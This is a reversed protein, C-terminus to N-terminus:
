AEGNSNLAYDLDYLMSFIEEIERDAKGAIDVSNSNTFFLRQFSDELSKMADVLAKPVNEYDKLSDALAMLEEAASLYHSTMDLNIVEAINTFQDIIRELVQPSLRMIDQM